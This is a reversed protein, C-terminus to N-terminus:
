PIALVSHHFFLSLRTLMGRESIWFATSQRLHLHRSLSLKQYTNSRAAYYAPLRLEESGIYSRTAISTIYYRLYNM